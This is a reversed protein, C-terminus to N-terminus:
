AHVALPRRQRFVRWRATGDLTAVRTGREFPLVIRVKGFRAVADALKAFWRAELAEAEAMWAAEDGRRLPATLSDIVALVSDGDPIADIEDIALPLTRVETSTIAGLGRAFADNAYVLGHRRAVDQPKSGEGWFCVSNVAPRGEAARRDNVEHAGMMM